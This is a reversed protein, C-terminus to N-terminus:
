VSKGLLKNGNFLNDLHVTMGHPEVTLKFNKPLLYEKENPTRRVKDYDFRILADV